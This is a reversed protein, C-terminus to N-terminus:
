NRHGYFAGLTDAAIIANFVMEPTAQFPENSMIKRGCAREAALMLRDKSCNVDISFDKLCVPLGLANTLEVYRKVEDAPYEGLLIEGLTTFAVIEGHKFQQLEEFTNLMGTDIAHAAACSPGEFSLAAMLLIAEVVREFAPTVVKTECSRRAELSYTFLTDKCARTLVSISHTRMGGDVVKAKSKDCAEGEYWAALADGIGAMLHATPATVIMDTDVLTLEPNRPFELEVDFTHQETYVVSSSSIPATSSVATPVVVTKSNCQFSAARSADVIKGAGLGIITDCGKATAAEAIKRIEQHTCEGGFFYDECAIGKEKLSKHITVGGLPRSIQDSVLLAHKGIQEVYHGIEKLAGQGQIYKPPFVIARYMSSAGKM